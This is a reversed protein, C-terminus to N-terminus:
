NPVVYHLEYKFLKNVGIADTLCVVGTGLTSCEFYDYDTGSYAISGDRHKLTIKGTHHVPSKFRREVLEIMEASVCLGEEENYTLGEPCLGTKPILYEGDVTTFSSTLLLLLSAFMRKFKVM